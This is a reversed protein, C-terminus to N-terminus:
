GFHDMMQMHISYCFMTSFMFSYSQKVQLFARAHETWGPWDDSWSGRWEGKGWPNRLKVLKQTDGFPSHYESVDLCFFTSLNISKFFDFRFTRLRSKHYTGM